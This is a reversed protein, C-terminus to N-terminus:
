NKECVYIQHVSFDSYDKEGDDTLMIDSYDQVLWLYLNGATDEYIKVKDDEGLQAWRSLGDRRADYWTETGLTRVEQADFPLADTKVFTDQFLTITSYDAAILAPKDHAINLMPEGIFVGFGILLLLGLIKLFTHKSRKKRRIDAKQHVAAAKINKTLVDPKCLHRFYLGRIPYLLLMILFDLGIDAQLGLSKYKQIIQRSNKGRSRVLTCTGGGQLLLKPYAIWFDQYVLAKDGLSFLQYEVRVTDGNQLGTLRYTCDAQLILDSLSAATKQLFKAALKDKLTLAKAKECAFGSPVSGDAAVSVSFDGQPTEIWKSGDQAISVLEGGINLHLTSGFQNVFCIRNVGEKGASLLDEVSTHLVMALKELTEMRPLAQGNEWKSVAKDSVNLLGALEGQTLKQGERLRCLSNGFKYRDM